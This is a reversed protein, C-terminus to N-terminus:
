ETDFFFAKIEDAAPYNYEKIKDVVSQADYKLEKAEINTEGDTIELIGYRAINKDKAPCGLSGANIYLKESICINRNHEHGYIIIDANVYNFIDALDDKDTNFKHSVYRHENNMAYHMVAIRKGEIELETEYPLSKLFEVSSNSLQKYEWKHHKMEEIGMREENPFKDPMGELLYREHNGRVAILNKIQMIRQVTEEPFPGIGIIDGSCIICDCTIEIEALVSELAILNNHIDTILGIKM